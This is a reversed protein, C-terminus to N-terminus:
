SIVTDIASRLEDSGFIGHFKAWLRGDAGVVFIWPPDTAGLATAWETPQPSGDSSDLVLSEGELRMRYPEAHVMHLTPLEHHLHILHGLGAGCTVTTRFGVSDITLLFPEGRALLEDVSREYFAPDAGPVTSIWALGGPQNIVSAATPTHVAPFPAGLAPSGDDPLVTLPMTTTLSSGDARTVHLQWTGVEDLDLRTRYMIRQGPTPQAIEAPQEDLLTGDPRELRVTIPVTRVAVSQFDADYVDFLLDSVGAWLNSTVPLASIAPGAPSAVAALSPAVSPVSAVPAPSAVSAASAM